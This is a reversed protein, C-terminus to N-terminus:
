SPCLSLSLSLPGYAAALAEMEEVTVAEAPQDLFDSLYVARLFLDLAAARVAGARVRVRM